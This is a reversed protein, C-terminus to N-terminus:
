ISTVKKHNDVPTHSVKCGKPSNSRPPLGKGGNKRGKWYVGLLAVLWWGRAQPSERADVEGARGELSLAGLELSGARPAQPVHVGEFIRAAQSRFFHKYPWLGYFRRPCRPLASQGWGRSAARKPRQAGRM